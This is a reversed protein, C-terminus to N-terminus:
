DDGNGGGEVAQDWRSYAIQLEDFVSYDFNVISNFEAIRAGFYDPNIGPYDLDDYTNINQIDDDCLHLMLEMIETESREAFNSFVTNLAKKKKNIQTELDILKVKMLNPPPGYHSSDMYNTSAIGNGNERFYGSIIEGFETVEKRTIKPQGTFILMTRIIRRYNNAKKEPLIRPSRMPIKLEQAAELYADYYSSFFTLSDHHNSLYKMKAGNVKELEKVQAILETKIAQRAPISHVYEVKKFDRFYGKEDLLFRLDDPNTLPKGSTITLHCGIDINNGHAAMLQELNEKSSLYKKNGAKDLGDFNPFVNVSNVRGAKVANIIGKNISPIVGFDDATVILKKM